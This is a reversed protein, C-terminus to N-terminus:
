TKIGSVRLTHDQMLILLVEEETLSVSAHDRWAGPWAQGQMHTRTCISSSFACTFSSCALDHCSPLQRLSSSASLADHTAGHGQASHQTMSSGPVLQLTEADRQM